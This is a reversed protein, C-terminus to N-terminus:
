ESYGEDEDKDEEEDEGQEEEDEDDEPIERFLAGAMRSDASVALYIRSMSLPVSSGHPM